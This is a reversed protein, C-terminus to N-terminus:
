PPLRPFPVGRPHAGEIGGAAQRMRTWVPDALPTAQFSQPIWPGPPLTERLVASGEAYGFLVFARVLTDVEPALRRACAAYTPGDIAAAGRLEASLETFRLAAIRLAILVQRPDRDQHALLESLRGALGLKITRHSECRAKWPIARLAAAAVRCVEIDRHELWSLLHPLVRRPRFRRVVRLFRRRGEEDGALRGLVRSTLSPDRGAARVRPLIEDLAALTALTALLIPQACLFLGLGAIIPRPGVSPAAVLALGFAAFVQLPLTLLVAPITRLPAEVLWRRARGWGSPGSSFLAALHRDEDAATAVEFSGRHHM